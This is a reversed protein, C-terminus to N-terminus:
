ISPLPLPPVPLPLGPILGPDPAPEPAPAPEPEPAPAPESPAPETSPQPAPAPPTPVPSPAAPTTVPTAVPPDPTAPPAPPLQPDVVVAPSAAAPVGNSASTATVVSTALSASDRPVVDVPGTDLEITPPTTSGPAALDSDAPPHERRTSGGPLGGNAATLGVGVAVSVLAMYLTDRGM